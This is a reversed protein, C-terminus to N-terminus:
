ISVMVMPKILPMGTMPRPAWKYELVFIIGKYILVVDARRGMRPIMFEFFFHAGSLEPALKKLHEIEFNWADRQMPELAFPLNAALAGLIEQSPTLAIKDAASDFYARKV